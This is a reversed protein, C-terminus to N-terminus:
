RKSLYTITYFNIDTLIINKLNQINLVENIKLKFEESLYNKTQNSINKYKLYLICEMGKLQDKKIRKEYNKNLIKKTKFNLTEILISHSININLKDNEKM